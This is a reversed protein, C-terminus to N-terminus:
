SEAMDKCQELLDKAISATNCRGLPLFGAGWVGHHDTDYDSLGTHIYWNGDELIQLRIDTGTNGEGDDLQKPSHRFMSRLARHEVAVDHAVDKISPYWM